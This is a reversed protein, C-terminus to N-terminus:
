LAEYEKDLLDLDEFVVPDIEVNHSKIYKLKETMHSSYYNEAEIIEDPLVNSQHDSYVSLGIVMLMLIAAAMKWWFPMHTKSMQSDISKWLADADADHIEFEDRHTSVLKKFKDEM